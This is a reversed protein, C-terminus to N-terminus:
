LRGVSSFSCFLVFCLTEYENEALKSSLAIIASFGCRIGRLGCLQIRM